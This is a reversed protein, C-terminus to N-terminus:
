SSMLKCCTPCPIGEYRLLTSFLAATGGDEMLRPTASGEMARREHTVVMGRAGPDHLMTAFPVGGGGRRAQHRPRLTTERCPYAGTQQATGTGCCSKWQWGPLVAHGNGTRDDVRRYDLLEMIRARVGCVLNAHNGHCPPGTGGSEPLSEPEGEPFRLSIRAGFPHVEVRKREGKLM